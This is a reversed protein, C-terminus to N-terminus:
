SLPCHNILTAADTAGPRPVTHSAPPLHRHNLWSELATFASRHCPTLPRLRDPFTDFLAHHFPWLFESGAPFGAALLAAHPRGADAGGKAYAPYARLAPPLFTLLNPGQPRWLTGEWDVGGDYLEPPNELQWRVLYGGNSLGTVLTRAPPRRYRQTAVTRAARTLQTVRQNWEALADGPATGDRYFNTCTNGKDTAAFAYGRALVWDDIARDNAYQRLTGHSGSIM